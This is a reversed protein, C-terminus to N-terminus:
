RCPPIGLLGGFTHDSYPESHDPIYKPFNHCLACQESVVCSGQCKGYLVETQLGHVGVEERLGEPDEVFVLVEGQGASITEVTFPAPRKVM